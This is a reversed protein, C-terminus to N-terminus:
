RPVDGRRRSGRAPQLLADTLRAVAQARVEPRSERRIDQSCRFILGAILRLRAARLAGQVATLQALIAGHDADAELMAAVAQLQGAASRLRRVTQGTSEPRM